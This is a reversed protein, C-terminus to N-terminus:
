GCCHKTSTRRCPRPSSLWARMQWAPIPIAAATTGVPDANRPKGTPMMPEYAPKTSPSSWCSGFRPRSLCACKAVNINFAADLDTDFDLSARALKTHEDIARIGAWGGWQVLRDSRYIYLGQQRNWKMPGTMREFASPSSFRERSPLIYRNLEVSGTVGGHQLEFRQPPLQVTAPEDPAFPNWARLKEGNVSITLKDQGPRDILFRHFVMSLHEITKSRLMDIRRRAWGGSPNREPLVRDLCEWIVVTGPSDELLTRARRVSETTGPDVVLWEDFDLILDLDLCRTAIRRNMKARRTVVLVRRAQSLAATKHSATVGLDGAGYERRSGFRFSEVLANDSMGSGDDAVIVRSDEGDFELMVDVRRAGATISNDILDAVASSFDYGIDRLSETLRAASPTVRANRNAM